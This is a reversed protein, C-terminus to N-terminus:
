ESKSGVDKDLFTFVEETKKFEEKAKEEIVPIPISQRALEILQAVEIEEEPQPLNAEQERINLLNKVLLDYQKTEELTLLRQRAIEKLRELQIEAIEKESSSPIIILKSM